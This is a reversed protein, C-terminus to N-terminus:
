VPILMAAAVRPRQAADPAILYHDEGYDFVVEFLWRAAELQAASLFVPRRGGILVTRQNGYRIRKIYRNATRSRNRENAQTLDVDTDDEERYEYLIANGKDDRTECILWSFIKRPDAPDVIRSQSDRGYLTLINDKSISRWHVDGPDNVNTWREIRAFLGEIRPRYRRIHYTIGEVDRRDHWHSQDDNLVPVLDEAGSLIFTDSDNQHAHGDLYQPLGKDTKRTVSPLSLSWGFGFPGNGSASDYSLSLEPGFGNRGPSTAIPVTMSGTGTVPNAAFKEGMGRIAGGGKPLEIKPASLTFSDKDSAESDQSATKNAKGEM